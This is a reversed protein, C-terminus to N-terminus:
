TLVNLTFIGQIGEYPVIGGDVCSLPFVLFLLLVDGVPPVMDSVVFGVDWCLCVLRSMLSVLGYRRCCAWLGTSQYGHLSSASCFACCSSLGIRSLTPYEAQWQHWTM